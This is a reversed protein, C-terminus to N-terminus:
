LSSTAGPIEPLVLEGRPHKIDLPAFYSQVLENSVQQVNPPNWVASSPDKDVLVARIGEYFDSKPQPQLTARQSLRYEMYLADGITCDENAHRQCAELTVKISTPSMKRLTELTSRAWSSGDTGDSAMSELREFIAEATTASFCHEISQSNQALPCAETDPLAVNAGAQGVECIAESVAAEENAREGLAELAPLLLHLNSSPVFHTALGSYLLDAAKLRAGTLGIFLGAPLGGTVRSLMHTGGVDPFLGIATEPKAFLTRETAIRFKGHVSIGVGGGMTVGDWVAIQPVRASQWMSAIKYNLQYEEYFFDYPLPDGALASERVAAVDGGACFAKEGAGEMLICKVPSNQPLWEDYIPHLDRIMQMTLANFKAPRDLTIIGINGHIAKRINNAAM